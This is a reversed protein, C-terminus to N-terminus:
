ENSDKIKKSDGKYTISGNGEPIITWETDDTHQSTTMEETPPNEINETQIDLDKTEEYKYKSQHCVFCQSYKKKHYRLRCVSCIKEYKSFYKFCTRCLFLPYKLISSMNYDKRLYFQPDTIIEYTNRCWNCVLPNPNMPSYNLNFLDCLIFRPKQFKSKFNVDKIIQFLEYDPIIIIPVWTKQQYTSRFYFKKFYFGQDHKFEYFPHDIKFSDQELHFLTIKCTLDKTFHSCDECSPIQFDTKAQAKLMSPIIISPFDVLNEILKYNNVEVRYRLGYGWIYVYLIPHSYYFFYGLESSKNAIERLHKNSEWILIPTINKQQYEELEPEKNPVFIILFAFKKNNKSSWILDLNSKKFILPFEEINLVSDNDLQKSSLLLNLLFQFIPTKKRPFLIKEQFIKQPNILHEYLQEASTMEKLIRDKQKSVREMLKIVPNLKMYFVQRIGHSTLITFEDLKKSTKIFSFNFEGNQEEYHFIWLPILNYDKYCQNRRKIEINSINSHQVEIAYKKGSYEWLLDPRVGDYGYVEVFKEPIQLLIKMYKKMALHEQTEGEFRQMCEPNQVKHAFHPIKKDGKRLILERHKCDPNRCLYKQNPLLKSSHLLKKSAEVIEGNFEAILM